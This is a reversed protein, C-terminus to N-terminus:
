ASILVLKVIQPRCFTRLPPYGGIGRHIFLTQDGRRIFGAAYKRGHASPVILPGILPFCIQGGQCHGSLQLHAGTQKALFFHDPHHALLIKADAKVKLLPGENRAGNWLDDAGLIALTKGKRKHYVVEDKLVRLGDKELMRRVGVADAWYDHNGLLAYAGLPAKFGKLLGKIAPIDKQFSIFDGTLAFFDPKLKKAEVVVAELYGRHIYKGFHLDSIQVLSLGSFEKPWHPLRVEYEVVEPQYLQNELGFAKLFGYPAKLDPVKADFRRTLRADVPQKFYFTWLCYDACIWLAWFGVGGVFFKGELPLAPWDSITFDWRRSLFVSPLGQATLFILTWFPTWLIEPIFGRPHFSVRNTLFVFILFHALLFSWFLPQGLPL